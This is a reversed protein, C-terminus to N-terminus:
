GFLGCDLLVCGKKQHPMEAAEDVRTRDLLVSVDRLCGVSLLFCMPTWCRLCRESRRRVQFGVVNNKSTFWSRLTVGDRLWLLLVKVIAGMWTATRWAGTGDNEVWEVRHGFGADPLHQRVLLVCPM